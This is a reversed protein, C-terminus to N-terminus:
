NASRIRMSFQDVYELVSKLVGDANAAPAGGAIGGKHLLEIQVLVPSETYSLRAAAHTYLTVDYRSVCLGASVKAVNINVYLYTDDDSNRIVRLGADTLHKSVATELVDQKLGCGVAETGLDEVVVGLRALGKLSADPRQDVAASPQAAPPVAPVSAAAPAATAAPPISAPAARTDGAVTPEYIRRVRDGGGRELFEVDVILQTPSTNISYTYRLERGIQAKYLIVLRGADWRTTASATVRGLSIEDDRGDTHFARASARDPTITVLSPQAAISLRDFPVRVEDTLVSIRRADDESERAIGPGNAAGRNGGRGPTPSGDPGIPGLFDASFGVEAPFQSLQRNLTWSGAFASPEQASVPRPVAAGMVILLVCAGVTTSVTM